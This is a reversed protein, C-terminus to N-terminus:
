KTIEFVVGGHGTGGGSTTGYAQGAGLTLGATPTFGFKGELSVGNENWSGNLTPILEYVVGDKENAGGFRTTGYISGTPSITLNGNPSEGDAGSFSHLVNETWGDALILEFVVGCGYGGCSTNAGELAAGFLNGSSDISVAGFPFGGDANGAFAHLVTEQWTGNQNPTLEFVVGCGNFGSCSVGNPDGGSVATGYLDGASDLVVSTPNGGDQGGTFSYLVTEQWVGGETPSLEFVLGWLAGSYQTTGYLNGTSDLVLGSAPNEGDDEAGTFSHLVTETWTGGSNPTLEFVVGCGGSDICNNHEGGNVTVGYLNGASDRVLSGVPNAGDACNPVSCFNYLVTETSGDAAPSLEFAVGCSSNCYGSVGSGGEYTTGYLNGASDAILSNPMLGDPGSFSHLVIAKAAASAGTSSLAVAVFAVSIFSARSFLTPKM